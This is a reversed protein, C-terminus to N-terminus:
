SLLPLPLSVAGGSKAADYIGISLELTQRGARGDAHPLAQGRLVEILNRYFKTYSCDHLDIAKTAGVEINQDNDDYAAFQWHEVRNLATGGVKVTGTEGLLTISGEVNSLYTLMTVDIVGIAGNRFKLIAAGSDEAETRGALTATRAMISEVPGVLWRLLDIYHSAQNMFAGGDFEWTGRWPASDVSERPRTWHMTANAMYIRGFRGREIATRLLQIIPNLRNQKVAFLRVGADDCAHVLADASQLTIAMPEECVLHKGAHAARIGQSAHLGSPTAIVVVDCESQALMKDFSAFWPVGWRDGAAAARTSVVDCVSSLALGDTAAIAEFHRQAISGCGAVAIRHESDDM